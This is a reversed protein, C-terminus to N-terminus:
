ARTVFLHTSAERDIECGPHGDAALRVGLGGAEMHNETLLVRFPEFTLSPQVLVRDGGVAIVGLWGDPGQRLLTSRKEGADRVCTAHQQHSSPRLVSSSASEM